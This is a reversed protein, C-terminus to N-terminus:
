NDKSVQFDITMNTHAYNSASNSMKVLAHPNDYFFKIKEAIIDSNQEEIIFGNKENDIVDPGQCNKTVLIPLGCAMAEGIVAPAGEELTPLCFISSKNYYDPLDLQNAQFFYNNKKLKVIKSPLNKDYNGIIWLESNDLDLKNFGDVLYKFGKRIFDNGVATVIFKKKNYNKTYFINPDFGITHLQLVKKPDLIGSDVYTKKQFTSISGVFDAKKISENINQTIKYNEENYYNLLGLKKYELRLKKRFDPSSNNLFYITKINLKKAKNIIKLSCNGFGLICM